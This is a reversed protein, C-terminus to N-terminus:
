SKARKTHTSSVADTVEGMGGAGISATIEPGIRTGHNLAMIALSYWLVARSLFTDAPTDM